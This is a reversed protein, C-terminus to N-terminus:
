FIQLMSSRASWYLKNRYLQDILEVSIGFRVNVALVEAMFSRKKKKNHSYCLVCPRVQKLVSLILSIDQEVDKECSVLYEWNRTDCNGNPPSLREPWAHMIIVQPCSMRGQLRSRIPDLYYNLCMHLLHPPSHLVNPFLEKICLEVEHAYKEKQKIIKSCFYIELVFWTNRSWQHNSKLSQVIRWRSLLFFFDQVSCCLYIVVVVVVMIIIVCFKGNSNMKLPIFNDWKGVLDVVIGKYIVM